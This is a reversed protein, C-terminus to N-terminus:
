LGMWFTRAESGVVSCDNKFIPRVDYLEVHGDFFTVNIGKGHRVMVEESIETIAGPITAPYQEGGLVTNTINLRGDMFAACSSPKRVKTVKNPLTTNYGFVSGNVTSPRAVGNYDYCGVAYDGNYSLQYRTSPCIYTGFYFYKKDTITQEPYAGGAIYPYLFYYMTKNNLYGWCGFDDNAAAYQSLGLGFQKLNNKCSAAQATMRAKGLAPLLMAALIAIIAIVVLLEILTFKKKM